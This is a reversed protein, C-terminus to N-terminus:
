DLWDDGFCGAIKQLLSGPIEDNQAKQRVVRKLEGHFDFNQQCDVCGRIHGMVEEFVAPPLEKLHREAVPLQKQEIEDRIAELIRSSDTDPVVTPDIGRVQKVEEDTPPPEAQLGATHPETSDTATGAPLQPAPITVWLAKFHLQYALFLTLGLALPILVHQINRRYM